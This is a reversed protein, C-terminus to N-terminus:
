RPQAVGEGMENLRCIRPDRGRIIVWLVDHHVGGAPIEKGGGQPSSTQAFRLCPPTQTFNCGM